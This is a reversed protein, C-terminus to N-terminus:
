QCAKEDPLVPLERWKWRFDFGNKKVLMDIMDVTTPTLRSAWLRGQECHSEPSGILVAVQTRVGNLFVYIPSGSQGGVGDNDVYLLGKKGGDLWAYPSDLFKSAGTSWARRASDDSPYGISHQIRPRLTAWPEYAYAMPQAGPIPEALRLLAYDLAKGTPTEGEVYDRPTYVHTVYHTGYPRSCPGLGHNALRFGLPGSGSVCHAATLVHRPGVLTGTCGNTLWGVHKWPAALAGATTTPGQVRDDCGIIGIRLDDNCQSKCTSATFEAQLSRELPSASGELEGTTHPEQEAEAPLTVPEQHASTEWEQADPPVPACALLSLLTAIPIGRPLRTTRTM